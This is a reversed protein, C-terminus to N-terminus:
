ISTNKIRTYNSIKNFLKLTSDTDEMNHKFVYDLAKKDGVLADTWIESNLRSGNSPIYFYDCAAQLSNRHLKFKHKVIFYLDTHTLEGFSPFELKYHTAKTRIFPIDFRTGYYTVLRDYQKMDNICDQILDMDKSKGRIEDTTLSRGCCKNNLDRFHYSLVLGFDAKLGSCEIDLIGVKEPGNTALQYCQPHSLGNHGHECLFNARKLIEDKRMNKLANYLKTSM